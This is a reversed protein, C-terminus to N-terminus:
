MSHDDFGAARSITLPPSDDRRAIFVSVLEAIGVWVNVLGLGTVAGRIFNNTIVAHLAPLADAFYNRDWYTSWPVITLVFGVEFFFVIQFLRRV